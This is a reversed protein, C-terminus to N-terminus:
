SEGEGVAVSATTLIFFVTTHLCTNKLTDLSLVQDERSFVGKIGGSSSVMWM